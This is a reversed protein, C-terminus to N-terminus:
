CPGCLFSRELQLSPWLEWSICVKLLTSDLRNAGCGQYLNTFTFFLCCGWAYPGFLGLAVSQRSVLYVSAGQLLASLIGVNQLLYVDVCGLLDVLYCCGLVLVVVVGEAGHPLGEECWWQERPSPCVLIKLLSDHSMRFLAM